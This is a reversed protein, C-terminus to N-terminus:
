GHKAPLECGDPGCRRNGAFGLGLDVRRDPWAPTYSACWNGLLWVTGAAVIAPGIMGLLSRHWQRHSLWGLM